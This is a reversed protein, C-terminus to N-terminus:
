RDSFAKRETTGYRMNKRILSFRDLKMVLRIHDFPPEGIALRECCARAIRRSSTIGRSYAFLIIKLLIRPDYAPAGTEDNRYKDNFISLDLVHDILQSLTYEFTGALIQKSFHIPIFKGQAYSYPKYRAM